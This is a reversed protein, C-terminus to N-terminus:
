CLCNINTIEINEIQYNILYLQNEFNLEQGNLMEDIIDSYNLEVSNIAVLETQNLAGLIAGLMVEDDTMVLMKMEATAENNYRGGVTYDRAFQINDIINMSWFKYSNDPFVVQGDKRYERLGSSLNRVQVIDYLKVHNDKVIELFRANIEQVKENFKTKM